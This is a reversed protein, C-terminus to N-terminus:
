QAPYAVVTVPGKGAVESSENLLKPLAAFEDLTKVGDAKAMWDKLHAVDVELDHAICELISDNDKKAYPFAGVERKMLLEKDTINKKTKVVLAKAGYAREYLGTFCRVFPNHPDSIRTGEIRRALGASATTFVAFKKVLRKPACTSSTSQSPNPYIRNLFKVQWDSKLSDTTISLGHAKAIYLFNEYISDPIVSDDGAYLGVREHDLYADTQMGRARAALGIVIAVVTNFVTTDPSGSANLGRTVFCFGEFKIEFCAEADLIPKLHEASSDFVGLLLANLIYRTTVNQSKDMDAVDCSRTVGSAEVVHQIRKAIEIGNWGSGWCGLKKLAVYIPRTYRSLQLGFETDMPYITRMNPKVVAENKQMPRVNPTPNKKAEGAMCRENRHKQMPLTQAKIVDEISMPELPGITKVLYAIAADIDRKVDVPVSTPTNSQLLEARKLDAVLSLPERAAVFAPTTTVSILQETVPVVMGHTEVDEGPTFGAPTSVTPLQGQCAVVAAMTVAAPSADLYSRNAVTSADHISPPMDAIASRLALTDLYARDFTMCRGDTCSEQRASVVNAGKSDTTAMQITVIDASGKTVATVRQAGKWFAPTAPSSRFSMYYVVKFWLWPLYTTSVPTWIFIAQNSGPVHLLSQEYCVSTFRRHLYFQHQAPDNLQHQYTKGGKVVEILESKANIHATSWGSNWAIARPVICNFVIVSGAFENWASPKLYFATDVASVPTGALFKDDRSTSNLDMPMHIHRRGTVTNGFSADRSSYSIDYRIVSAKPDVASCIAHIWRHITWRLTAGAAHPNKPDTKVVSPCKIGLLSRRMDAVPHLVTSCALLWRLPGFRAWAKYTIGIIFAVVAACVVAPNFISRQPICLNREHLYRWYRTRAYERVSMEESRHFPALYFPKTYPQCVPLLDWQALFVTPNRIANRTVLVGILTPALM